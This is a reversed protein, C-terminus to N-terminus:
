QFKEFILRPEKPPFRLWWKFRLYEYYKRFMSKGTDLEPKPILKWLKDPNNGMFEVGSFIRQWQSTTGVLPKFLLYIRCEM